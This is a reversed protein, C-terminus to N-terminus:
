QQNERHNERGWYCHCAVLGESPPDGAAKKDVMDWGFGWEVSFASFARFRVPIDVSERVCENERLLEKLTLNREMILQLLKIYTPFNGRISHQSLIIHPNEICTHNACYLLGGVGPQRWDGCNDHCDFVYSPRTTDQHKLESEDDFPVDALSTPSFKHKCQTTEVAMAEASQKITRFTGISETIITGRRLVVTSDPLVEGDVPVPTHILAILERCFFHNL